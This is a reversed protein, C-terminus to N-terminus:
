QSPHNSQVETHRSFGSICIYIYIHTYVYVYAYVYIYIYIHKCIIKVYIYMIMHLTLGKPHSVRFSSFNPIGSKSMM